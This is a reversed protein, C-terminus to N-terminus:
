DLWWYTQNEPNFFNYGTQALRGIVRAGDVEYLWDPHYVSLVIVFDADPTYIIAADTISHLLGDLEIVYGYKDAVTAEPPLTTDIFQLPKLESLINVMTQCESQTIEGPFTETLMGSGDVSCHYIGTMLQGLESSVMQNLSDPNLNIDTRTNAPTTVLRLPPAGLYFLASLFTNELGLAEMDETVIIPGLNEDLYYQLLTDAASNESNIIMEEMLGIVVEPTPEELHRFLSIMIPVKIASAGTFAVDPVVDAGDWTAFHLTEGSDMAQLYVEVLGDFGTWEINHKLFAELASWDLSGSATGTVTLTVQHIEPDMLAATIDMVSQNLDLGDGTTSLAFNTTNPIPTLPTGSQTYRPEIEQALYTRLQEADVSAELPLTVPESNIRNWLYAWYGGTQIHVLASQVLIEADMEFGLDVPNATINSGDILLDLPQGYAANLRAAASAPNLGGVPVAAITSGAPLSASQDKFRSYEVITITLSSVLFFIGLAGLIWWLAKSKM